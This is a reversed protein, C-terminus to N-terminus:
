EKKTEQLREIWRQRKEYMLNLDPKLGAVDTSNLLDGYEEIANKWAEDFVVPTPNEGRLIRACKLLGHGFEFCEEASQELAAALGIIDCIEKNTM